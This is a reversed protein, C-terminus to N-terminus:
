GDGGRDNPDDGVVIIRRKFPFPDSYNTGVVVLIMRREIPHTVVYLRNTVVVASWWWLLPGSSESLENLRFLSYLLPSRPVFRVKLDIFPSKLFYKEKGRDTSIFLVTSIRSLPLLPILM